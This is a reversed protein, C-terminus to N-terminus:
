VTPGKNLCLNWYRPGARLHIERQEFCHHWSLEKKKKLDNEVIKIYYSKNLKIAAFRNNFLVFQWACIKNFYKNSLLQSIEWSSKFKVNPKDKNEFNTSKQLRIWPRKNIMFLVRVILGYLDM